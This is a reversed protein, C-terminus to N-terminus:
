LQCQFMLGVEAISQNYGHYIGEYIEGYTIISISLGDDGLSTLLDVAGPKGMLWDAVWDTDVLYKV